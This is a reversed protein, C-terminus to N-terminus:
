WTFSPGPGWHSSKGSPARPPLRKVRPGYSLPSLPPSMIRRDWTRNRTPGGTNDLTKSRGGSGSGSTAVVKSGSAGSDPTEAGHLRDVAAKNGMPLWRGYTDVTLQISAHGLQRQVYVPSEGQQLLLSAFTHRLCHPHFHLPLKAKALVRKFAKQVRTSDM